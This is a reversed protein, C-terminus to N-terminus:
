TEATHTVGKPASTSGSTFFIYPPDNARLPSLVVEPAKEEILDELNLGQARPSGYRIVGLPLSAVRQSAALDSDRESHALIMRGDSVELAHDIEPTIYRYKLLAAVLGAKLCALYHVVLAMRNPM